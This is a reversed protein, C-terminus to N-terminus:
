RINQASQYPIYLETWTWSSLPPIVKRLASPLAGAKSVDGLGAVQVLQAVEIWDSPLRISKSFYAKLYRRADPHLSAVALMWNATVRINLECRTYRFAHRHCCWHSDTVDNFDRECCVPVWNPIADCHCRLPLSSLPVHRGHYSASPM